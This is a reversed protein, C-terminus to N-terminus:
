LHSEKFQLRNHMIYVISIQIWTPSFTSFNDCRECFAFPSKAGASCKLPLKYSFCSALNGWFKSLALPESSLHDSFYRYHSKLLNLNIQVTDAIRYKITLLSKIFHSEELQKISLDEAPHLNLIPGSHLVLEKETKYNKKITKELVPSIVLDNAREAWDM